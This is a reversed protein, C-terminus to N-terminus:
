RRASRRRRGAHLPHRLREGCSARAARRAGEQREVTEGLAMVGSALVVWVVRKETTTLAPVAPHRIALRGVRIEELAAIAKVVEAGSAPREHPAKRLMRAVLDSLEAPVDDRLTTLAPPDELQIKALLATANDARFAGHGAICEYLVCGLGFVDARADASKSGQEPAM